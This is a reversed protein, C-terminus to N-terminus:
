QEVAQVRYFVSGDQRPPLRVGQLQVWVQAGDPDSAREPFLLSGAPLWAVETLPIWEELNTSICIQPQVRGGRVLPKFYLIDNGHSDKQIFPQRERRHWYPAAAGPDRGQAWEMLNPVGNGNADDAPEAADPHRLLLEERVNAFTEIMPAWAYEGVFNTAPNSVFVSRKGGFALGHGFLDGQGPDVGEMLRNEWVWHDGELRYLSVVAASTAVPEGTQNAIFQRPASIAAEGGSVAIAAGFWAQDEPWAPQLKQVYNWRDNQLRYVFVAGRNEGLRPAGVLLWEGDLALREGFLAGTEGAPAFIKQRHVWGDDIREFLHVAGSNRHSRHPEDAFDPHEDDENSAAAIWDGSVACPFSFYDGFARPEADPNVIRQPEGFRGTEESFSYVYLAGALAGREDDGDASAILTDGSLDVWGGLYTGSDPEPELLQILRWGTREAPDAAYVYVGGVDPEWHLVDARLTPAGVALLTTEGVQGLAASTGFHQTEASPPQVIAVPSNGWRSEDRRYYISVRGSHGPAFPEGVVLWDDLVDLSFGRFAQALAPAALGRRQLEPEPPFIYYPYEHEDTLVGGPTSLEVRVRLSREEASGSGAPFDFRVFGDSTIEIGPEPDILMWSFWERDEEAEFPLGYAAMSRGESLVFPIPRPLLRPIENRMALTYAFEKSLRPAEEDYATARLRLKVAEAASAGDWAFLGSETLEAGAPGELLEVVFRYRSEEGGLVPIPIALDGVVRPSFDHALGSGRIIFRPPPDVEVAPGPPEPAIIVVVGFASSLGLGLIAFSRLLSCRAFM